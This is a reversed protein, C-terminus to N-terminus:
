ATPPAFVARTRADFQLYYIAVVALVIRLAAQLPDAYSLLGLVISAYEFALIGLRAPRSLRGLLRGAWILLLSIALVLVGIAVYLATGGTGGVGGVTAYAAGGFILLAGNLVGLAGQVYAILRATRVGSPLLMPQV